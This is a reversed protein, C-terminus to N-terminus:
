IAKRNGQPINALLKRMLGRQAIERRGERKRGAFNWRPSAYSLNVAEDLPSFINELLRELTM